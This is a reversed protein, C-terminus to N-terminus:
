RPSSTENIAVAYLDCELVPQVVDRVGLFDDMPTLPSFAEVCTIFSVKRPLTRFPYLHLCDYRDDTESRDHLLRDVVESASIPIGPDTQSTAITSLPYVYQLFEALMGPDNLIESASGMDIALGIATHILRIRRERDEASPFM